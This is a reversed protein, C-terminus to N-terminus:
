VLRRRRTRGQWAQASVTQTPKKRFGLLHHLSGPQRWLCDNTDQRDDSSRQALICLEGSHGAGGAM